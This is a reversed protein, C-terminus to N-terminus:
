GELIKLAIKPDEIIKVCTEGNEEFEELITFQKLPTEGDESLKDVVYYTNKKYMAQRLVLYQENNDLEIVQGTRNEM